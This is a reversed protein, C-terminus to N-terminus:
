ILSFYKIYLGIMPLIFYVSKNYATRDVIDNLRYKNEDILNERM